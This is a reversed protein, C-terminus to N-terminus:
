DNLELLWNSWDMAKPLGLLELDARTKGEPAKDLVEYMDVIGAKAAEEMFYKTMVYGEVDDRNNLGAEDPRM